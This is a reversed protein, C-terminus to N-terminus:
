ELQPRSGAVRMPRWIMSESARLLARRESSPRWPSQTEDDERWLLARAAGADGGGSAPSPCPPPMCFSLAHVSVGEGVRGGRLRPLSRVSDATALERAIRM